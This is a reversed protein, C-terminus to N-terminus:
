LFEPNVVARLVMQTEEERTRSSLWWIGSKKISWNMEQGALLLSALRGLWPQHGVLVVSPGHPWGVASLVTSVDAGPELEPLIQANPTLAQVTERARLAPSALIRTKNDLHDRLWRASKEAQKHGRATLARKLDLRSDMCLTEPLDEAEAHRWLILHM